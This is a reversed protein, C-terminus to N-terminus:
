VVAPRVTVADGAAAQLQEAASGGRVSIELTESSGIVTLLEDVGAADYSQRLGTITHGAVEVQPTSPVDDAPINTVLNGFHDVYVVQGEVIGGAQRELRLPPLRLWDATTPGLEAVSKGGAIAATVPAFVDRGHFTRSVPKRYLWESQVSVLVEPPADALVLSLLGNDPALFVQGGAEAALVRRDSGVGPDVVATHVTDEPFYRRNAALVWAAAPVDQPPIGHTLDIVRAGPCASAIVGKMVGVYADDVGFDTLLTILPRPEPM